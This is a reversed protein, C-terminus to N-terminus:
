QGRHWKRVRLLLALTPFQAGLEHGGADLLLGPATGPPVYESDCGCLLGRPWQGCPSKKTNKSARLM